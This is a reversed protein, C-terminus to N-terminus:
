GQNSKLATLRIQLQITTSNLQLYLCVSLFAKPMLPDYTIKLLVCSFAKTPRRDKFSQKGKHRKDQAAIEDSQSVQQYVSVM